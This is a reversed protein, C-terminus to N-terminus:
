AMSIYSMAMIVCIIAFQAVVRIRMFRQSEDESRGALLTWAGLLLGAGIAGLVVIAAYPAVDSAIASFGQSFLAQLKAQLRDWGAYLAIAVFAAIVGIMGYELVYRVNHGTVGGRVDDESIVIHDDKDVYAAM